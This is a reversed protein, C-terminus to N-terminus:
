SPVETEEKIAMFRLEHLIWNARIAVMDWNTTRLVVTSSKFMETQTHEEWAKEAAELYEKIPKSM